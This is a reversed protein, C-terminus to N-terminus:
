KLRQHVRSLSPFSSNCSPCSVPEPPPLLVFYWAPNSSTNELTSLYMLKLFTKAYFALYYSRCLAARSFQLSLFLIFNLLVFPSASPGSRRVHSRHAAELFASAHWCNEVLLWGQTLFVRWIKAVWVFCPVSTLSLTTSTQQLFLCRLPPSIMVNRRSVWIVIEAKLFIKNSNKNGLKERRLDKCVSVNEGM